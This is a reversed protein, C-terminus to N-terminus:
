EGIKMKMTENMFEWVGDLGVDKYLEKLEAIRITGNLDMQFHPMDKYIRFNGGWTLGASVGVAGLNFWKRRKDIDSDLYPDKGVFCVDFALGYNHFSDGGMCNTVIKGEKTRGQAYLADQEEFSRFAQTIRIDTHYLDRYTSILKNCRVQLEPYLSEIKSM